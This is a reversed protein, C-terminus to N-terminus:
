LRTRRMKRFRRPGWWLWLGTGVMLLAGVGLVNMSLLKFAESVISGDHIHEIWDAHRRGIHKVEATAGDLQVEWHARAFRVKVVGKAPRVDMREITYDGLRPVSDRLRMAAIHALTDLPLWEGLDTTTGRRTAPQLWEIQKKWGLLLGTLASVLLLGAVLLGVRRHGRRYRRLTRTIRQLRNVNM